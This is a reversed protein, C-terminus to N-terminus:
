ARREQGYPARTAIVTILREVAFEPDRSAGKVEADARACAQLALGLSDDNWGRLDRQAREVQWPAMGLSKALAGAPEYSGYVKAMTRIKMAIAAVMPVPDTGSSFARRLAILAPGLQGAIAADAVAFASVEARGGYYREVVDRSIDESVDNLLQRCAAALEALDDGFAAVLTSVARPDFGRGAARFEGVAFDFRDSERKIAACPIEVGAGKGQRIGDLLKKGRVSSGTHRFVVTAGDQPHEIYSLAESLFADNCKEVGDIRVLRPEGFLSPSTVALLTGSEYTDARIDTVELSPDEAKLYARIGSIAREALAEEPGSVLVIPAPQPERWSLQPIKSTSRAPSRTAAAM